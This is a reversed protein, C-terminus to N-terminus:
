ELAFGWGIPRGARFIRNPEKITFNKVLRKKPMKRIFGLQPRGDPMERIEVLCVGGKGHTWFRM